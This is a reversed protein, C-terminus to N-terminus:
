FKSPRLCIGTCRILYSNFNKDSSVDDYRNTVHREVEAPSDRLAEFIYDKPRKQFHVFNCLYPRLWMYQICICFGPYHSKLFSDSLSPAEALRGALETAIVRVKFVGQLSREQLISALTQGTQM